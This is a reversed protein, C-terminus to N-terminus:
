NKNITKFFEERHNKKRKVEIDRNNVLVFRLSIFLTNTEFEHRPKTLIHYGAQLHFQLVKYGIVPSIGTSKAEFDSRYVLNAGYTFDLRGLKFWYGADLGIVNYKFNYNVGFHAAHTIPKIWKVRKWQYEGGMELITYLGRQVGMYPGSKKFSIKPSQLLNRELIHTTIGISNQQSFSQFGILLIFILSKNNM